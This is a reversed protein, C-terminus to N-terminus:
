QRVRVNLTLGDHVEEGTAAMQFESDYLAKVSNTLLATTTVVGAM